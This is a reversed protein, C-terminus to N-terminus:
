KAADWFLIRWDSYNAAVESAQSMMSITRQALRGELPTLRSSTDHGDRSSGPDALVSKESEM